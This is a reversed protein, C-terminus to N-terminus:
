EGVRRFLAKQDGLVDIGVAAGDHQRGRHFMGFQFAILDVCKTFVPDNLAALARHPRRDFCEAFINRPTPVVMVILVGVIGVALGIDANSLIAEKREIANAM